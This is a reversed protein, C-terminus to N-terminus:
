NFVSNVKKPLISFFLALAFFWLLYNGYAEVGIGFFSFATTLIVSIISILLFTYVIKKLMNM